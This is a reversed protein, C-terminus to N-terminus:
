ISANVQDRIWHYAPDAYHYPSAGWKHNVTSVALHDPLRVARLGVDRLHQYYRFYLVNATGPSMERFEEVLEGTDTVSAWPTEIVLTRDFVGGDHLNRVWRAVARKWLGFHKDTGFKILKPKLSGLRGSRALERSNTVYSGDPLVFVGLRESLLDVLLLDTENARRRIKRLLTSNIDGDLSRNQFASSLEGPQLLDTAPSNASILSQRAVYEILKHGAMHEFADRTVCGGYIFINGM